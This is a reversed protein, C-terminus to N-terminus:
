IVFLDEGDFEFFDTALREMRRYGATFINSSNGRGQIDNAAISSLVNYAAWRTDSGGLRYLHPHYADIIAEAQRVGLYGNNNQDDTKIKSRIFDEFTAFTFTQRNWQNFLAAMDQFKLLNSAFDDRIRDVLGAQVHTYTKGFMKSLLSVGNADRYASISFGVSSRGDYGNWISVKTKVVEGGVNINFEDGNLIFDRQWRNEKFNMHDITREIPLDSFAEGFIRDVEENTVLKYVTGVTGLVNGNDGNLLADRDVSIEEGQFDTFLPNRLVPYFPDVQNM